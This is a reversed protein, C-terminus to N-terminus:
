CVAIVGDVAPVVAVVSVGAIAPSFAVASFGVVGPVGLLLLSFMLM